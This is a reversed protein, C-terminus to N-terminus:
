CTYVDYVYIHKTIYSHTHTYWCPFGVWIFFICENGGAAPGLMLQINGSLNM